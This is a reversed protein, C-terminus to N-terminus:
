PGDTLTWVLTAKYEGITANIPNTRILIGEDKGFTFKYNDNDPKVDNHTGIMQEESEISKFQGNQVLYLADNLESANQINKLPGESHVSLNFNSEKSNYVTVDHTDNKRHIVKNPNNDISTDEFVIDNVNIIELRNGKVITDYLCEDYNQNADNHTLCFEIKDGKNLKRDPIKFTFKGGNKNELSEFSEGTTINRMTLKFPQSSVDTMTVKVERDTDYVDVHEVDGFSGKFVMRKLTQKFNSNFNKYSNTISNSATTTDRNFKFTGTVSPTQYSPTNNLEKFGQIKSNQVDFNTQGSFLQSNGKLDVLEPYIINFNVLTSTSSFTGAGSAILSSRNVNINDNGRTNIVSNATSEINVKSQNRVNLNLSGGSRAEITPEYSKLNMESAGDVNIDIKSSTIMAKRNTSDITFKGTNKVNLELAEADFYVGSNTSKLNFNGGNVDIKSITRRQKIDIGRYNKSTIGLTAGKDVLITNPNYYKDSYIGSREATINLTSGNKLHIAHPSNNETHLAIGGYAGNISVDANNHVIYSSFDLAFSLVGFDMNINVNGYFHINSPSGYAFFYDSRSFNPNYNSNIVRIDGNEVKSNFMYATATATRPKHLYKFDKIIFESIDSNTFSSTNSLAYGNGDLIKQNYNSKIDTSKTGEIDKKLIIVEVKNDSMAAELERPTEVCRVEGRITNEIANGMYNSNATMYEEATPCKGSFRTKPEEKPKPEEENLSTARMKTEEDSTEKSAEEKEDTEKEFNEESTEKEEAPEKEVDEEDEAAEEIEESEETTSEEIDKSEKEETVKESNDESSTEEEKKTCQYTGEFDKKNESDEKFTLNITNDESIVKVKDQDTLEDNLQFKFKNNNDVTTQGIFNDNVYLEVEQAQNGNGEIINKEKVNVSYNVNCSSTGFEEANAIPAPALILLCIIINLFKQM